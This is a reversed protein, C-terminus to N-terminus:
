LSWRLQLRFTRGLTGYTRVVEYERDFLNQIDFDIAGNSNTLYSAGIDWVDYFPMTGSDQRKSVAQYNLRTIIKESLDYDLKVQSFWRPRRALEAGTKQNRARMWTVSPTIAFAGFRHDSSLELGYAETEGINNYTSTVLDYDIQNKAENLFAQLNFTHNTTTARLGVQSSITKTAALKSDGGYISYRQYLTPAKFGTGVQGRVALWSNIHYGAGVRGSIRSAYAQAKDFRLSQDMFFKEWSHHYSVGTGINEQRKKSFESTIEAQDFAYDTFFVFAQKESILYRAELHAQKTDGQYTEGSVEREVETYSLNTKLHLRGDLIKHDGYISYIRHDYISLDNDKVDGSFSNDIDQKARVARMRIGVGIAENKLALGLVHRKYFDDEAAGTVRTENYASIGDSSILDGDFHLQYDGFSTATKAGGSWTDHSGYSARMNSTITEDTTILIVGGSADAGYLAGQGGKIVEIRKVGATSFHQLQMSRDIDSPDVIEVGDIFVKVQGRGQGQLFYTSTGGFPGNDAILLGPINKLAENITAKGALDNGELVYSESSTKDYPLSLRDAEVTFSQAWALIPLLFLIPVFKM